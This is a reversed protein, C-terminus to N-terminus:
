KKLTIAEDSTVKRGLLEEFRKLVHRHTKKDAVENDVILQRKSLMVNSRPEILGENVLEQRLLLHYQHDTPNDAGFYFGEVHAPPAPSAIMRARNQAKMEQAMQRINRSENELEMAAERYLEATEQENEALAKQADKRLEAAQKLMEGAQLQLEAEQQRQEAMMERMNRKMERIDNEDFYNEGFTFDADLHDLSITDDSFFFGEVRPFTPATIQGNQIFITDNRYFSKSTRSLLTDGNVMSNVVITKTKSNMKPNTRKGEVSLIYSDGENKITMAETSEVTYFKYNGTISDKVFKVEVGGEETQWDFDANFIDDSNVDKGNILVKVVKGNKNEVEISQIKRTITDTSFLKLSNEAELNSSEQMVEQDVDKYAEDNSNSGTLIGSTSILLVFLGSFIVVGIREHTSPKLKPKRILREIRKMTNIQNFTILAQSAAEPRVAAALNALAKALSLNKGSTLLAMDDCINERETRIVSSIWWVFPNFFLITEILSQFINVMFDARKIHALEHALIMEVQDFPLRSLTGIPLIICPKLIGVVMPVTIKVSELLVVKTKIHLADSIQKLRKEWEYSVGIVGVRRYRYALFYGGSMRLAMFIMGAIWFWFFMPALQLMFYEARDLWSEFHFQTDALTYVVSVVSESTEIIPQSPTAPQYLKIFTVVPLMLTALLAVAAILYRSQATAKQMMKLLLLTVLAVLGSQWLSHLLAIGATQLMADTIVWGFASM